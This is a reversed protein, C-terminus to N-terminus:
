KGVIMSEIIINYLEESYRLAMDLLKGVIQVLEM